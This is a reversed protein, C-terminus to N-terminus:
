RHDIQTAALRIAELLHQMGPVVLRNKVSIVGVPALMHQFDIPLIILEGEREYHKAVSRALLSIAQGQRLLAFIALFSMSEIINLPMAMGNALIVEELKIRMLSSRSPMIWQESGLEPWSTPKRRGFCHATSCVLCVPEDYLRETYFDPAIHMPDLRALVVDLRGARLSAMLTDLVGEEVTVGTVFSREKVAQIVLPWLLPTAVGMVGIHLRAVTGQLHATLQEHTQDVEAMVVRALRIAIEGEPTPATGRASRLFLRAGFCEELEALSKSIAPQTVRLFEAVKGLHRYEDLAILLHLHRLKLYSRLLRDTSKLTGTLPAGKM